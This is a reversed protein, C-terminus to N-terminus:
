WFTPLIVFLEINTISNLYYNAIWSPSCHISIVLIKKRNSLQTILYNTISTTALSCYSFLHLSSRLSQRYKSNQVTARDLLWSLETCNKINKCSIYLGLMWYKYIEYKWLTRCKNCPSKLLIMFYCCIDYMDFVYINIYLPANVKIFM